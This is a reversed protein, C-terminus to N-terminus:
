RAALRAPPADGAIELILKSLIAAKFDAFDQAPIIFSGPGGIVNEAYYVDLALEAPTPLGFPQPRDNLIPLGNIVIGRAVAEDRAATVARGRNNPGDGSVDIVRREGAFGNGDFLPVAFDIAGSISTWRASLPGSMTISEAFALASKDDDILAWDVALRQYGASAWEVYAVAIRGHFNGRIAQLVAPDTIAAIYGDRQQQAETADISGSVDVALVLELDVPIEEAEVAAGAVLAASGLLWAALLRGM